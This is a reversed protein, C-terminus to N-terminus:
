RLIGRLLKKAAEGEQGGLNEDILREAGYQAVIKGVESTYRGMVAKGIEDAPAGASGGLRTMELPPLELRQVNGGM